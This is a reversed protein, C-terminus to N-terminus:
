ANVMVLRPLGTARSTGMGPKCGSNPAMFPVTSDCCSM